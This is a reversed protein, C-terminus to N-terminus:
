SAEEEPLAPTTHRAVPTCESPSYTCGGGDCFTVHVSRATAADVTGEEREEINNNWRGARRTVIVRDGSRLTTM